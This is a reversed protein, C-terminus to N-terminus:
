ASNKRRNGNATELKSVAAEALRLQDVSKTYHAVMALSAHGAIAAIEHVSAGAEALRVMALKRLGHLSRDHVGIGPLYRWFANTVTDNTWPRGQATVLMFPSSAEAKWSDLEAQFGDMLPVTLRKGTKQQRISIRKGDYQAWTMSILDSRRQATHLALSVVRRLHEPLKELAIDVEGETWAQVAGIPLKKVGFAPNVELMGRQIAWAFLSSLCSIVVIATGPGVKQAVIDRLALVQSRKMDGPEVPRQQNMREIWQFGRAKNLQTGKTLGLFEPSRRYARILAEMGSQPPPAATVEALQRAQLFGPDDPSPLRAGNSRLYYYHAVSGDPKRKSVRKVGAPLTLLPQSLKSPPM